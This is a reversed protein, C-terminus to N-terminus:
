RFIEALQIACEIWDEFLAKVEHSTCNIVRLIELALYACLLVLTTTDAMVPIEVGRKQPFDIAAGHAVAAEMGRIDGSLAMTSLIYKRKFDSDTVIVCNINLGDHIVSHFLKQM